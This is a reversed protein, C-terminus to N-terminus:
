SYPNSGPVPFGSCTEVPSVTRQTQFDFVCLMMTPDCGSPAFQSPVGPPRLSTYSAPIPIVVRELYGPLVVVPTLRVLRHTHDRIDDDFLLTEDFFLSDRLRTADRRLLPIDM